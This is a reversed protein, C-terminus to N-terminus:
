ASGHTEVTRYKYHASRFEEVSKDFTVPRASPHLHGAAAHLNRSPEASLPRLLGRSGVFRSLFVWFAM